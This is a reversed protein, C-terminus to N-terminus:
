AADGDPPLFSDEFTPTPAPSSGDVLRLTSPVVHAARKNKRQYANAIEMARIHSRVVASGDDAVPQGTFSDVAVFADPIEIIKPM